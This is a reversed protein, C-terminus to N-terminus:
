KPLLNQRASQEFENARHAKPPFCQILIREGDRANQTRAETHAARNQRPESKEIFIVKEKKLLNFPATAGALEARLNIVQRLRAGKVAVAL